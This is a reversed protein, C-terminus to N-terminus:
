HRLLRQVLVIAALPAIFLALFFLVGVTIATLGRRGGAEVGSASEVYATITSTGLLAGISVGSADVMM